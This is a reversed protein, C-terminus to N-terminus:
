NGSHHPLSPTESPCFMPSMSSNQDTEPLGAQGPVLFNEARAEHGSSTGFPNNSYSSVDYSTLSSQSYNNDYFPEYGVACSTGSSGEGIHVDGGLSQSQQNQHGTNSYTALDGGGAPGSAAQM